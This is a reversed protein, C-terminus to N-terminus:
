YSRRNLQTKIPIVYYIPTLGQGRFFLSMSLLIFNLFSIFPRLAMATTATTNNWKLSNQIGPPNAPTSTNKTMDPKKIVLISKLEM